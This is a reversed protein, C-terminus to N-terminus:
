ENFEPKSYVKEIESIRFAAKIIAEIYCGIYEESNAATNNAYELGIEHVIKKLDNM